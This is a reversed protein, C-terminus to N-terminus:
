ELTVNFYSIILGKNKTTYDYVYADIERIRTEPTSKPYTINLHVDGDGIHGFGYVDINEEKLKSRLDRIIDYMTEFPFALDYKYVNGIKNNLKYNFFLLGKRRLAEALSERIKMFDRVQTSDQAVVGDEVLGEEM